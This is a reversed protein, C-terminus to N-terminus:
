IQRLFAEIKTQLNRVNGTNEIVFDAKQKKSEIDM